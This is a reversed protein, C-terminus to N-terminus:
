DSFGPMNSPLHSHILPHFPGLLTIISLLFISYYHVPGYKRVARAAPKYKGRPALCMTKFVNPTLALPKLQTSQSWGLDKMFRAFWTSCPRISFNSTRQKKNENPIQTCASDFKFYQISLFITMNKLVSLKLIKCFLSISMEVNRPYSKIM